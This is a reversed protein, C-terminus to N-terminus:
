ENIRGKMNKLKDAINRSVLLACCLGTMRYKMAFFLLWRATNTRDTGLNRLVCQLTDDQLVTYVHGIRARVPIPAAMEQKMAARTFALFPDSLRMIIEPGYGLRTCLAVSEQYFHRIHVYRDPRYRRSLSSMNVRYMYLPESLVTVGQVYQFLELLSYVDESIIERESTCRWGTRRILDLSYLMMCTSMYLRRKGDGHPDPAILEPLFDKQVQENRYINQEMDPAFVSTTKGNKDITSFGFVAVDASAEAIKRQTKEVTEPLIYDDSDVFCIYDGNAHEIGTNRAMGLGENQKHIVRIRGDKEAWTDCIEPCNDPSGDDILLIELNSYTQRVISSICQELYQETRYVPVVVTVLPNNM